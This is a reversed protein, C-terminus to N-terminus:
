NEIYLSRRYLRKATAGSMRGRDDWGGAYFANEPIARPQPRQYLSCFGARGRHTPPLSQAGRRGEFRYDDPLVDGLTQFYIQGAAGELGRLEEAIEKVTAGDLALIRKRLNWIEQAQKGLLSQKTWIRRSKLKELFEAQNQLKQAVWNKVFAVAHMSVSVMVQAKQVAPTTHLEFGQLRAMPMGHYDMVVVDIGHQLALLCATTTIIVGDQMWLHKIKLPSHSEKQLMQNDDFWTVEFMGDKVSVKTGPRTVHLEM